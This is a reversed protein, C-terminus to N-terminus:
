KQKWNGSNDQYWWGKKAKRIWRLAFTARIKAKWEPQGNAKAIESYLTLRDNNEDAVAKKIVNRKALPVDAPNRLSILADNTFGVAGNEYYPLLTKHRGSMSRQVQKIEATSINFDVGAYAPEVLMALAYVAVKLVPNVASQKDMKKIEKQPKEAGEKEKGDEQWVEEIIQDAAKEAAAPPFTINVTVCAAPLLLVFAFLISPKVSLM